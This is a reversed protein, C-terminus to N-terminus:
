RLRGERRAVVMRDRADQPENDVINIGEASLAEVIAAIDEAEIKDTGTLENSNISPSSARGIGL